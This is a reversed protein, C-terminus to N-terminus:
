GSQGKWGFGHFVPQYVPVIEHSVLIQILTDLTQFYDPKMKNLHGDPLDEFARDFGLPTKRAEPGEAFRDPQLSMLLATNFGKQYRDAAYVRVQDPAARFPISWPTDGTVLFPKGNAHVVNRKGPSMRLLGNKLLNNEGTYSVSHLTGAKGVLREDAVSAYTLWSWLRGTDPPAFRIRWINDGDWFGTRSLSDGQGNRFVAWVEADTYGNSYTKESLLVIEHTTWQQVENVEGQNRCSFPTAWALFLCPIMWL